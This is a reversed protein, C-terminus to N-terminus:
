EISVPRSIACGTEDRIYVRYNGPPLDRFFRNADFIEGDLSYAYPPQGQMANVVIAGSASGAASNRKALHRAALDGVTITVEASATEGDLAATVAYATTAGPAAMTASSDPNALGARPTWSFSAGPQSAEAELLVSDGACLVAAQSLIEVDFAQADVFKLVFVDGAIDTSDNGFTISESSTAGSVYFAGNGDSALDRAAENGQGGGTQVWLLALDEDLAAFYLDSSTTPAEFTQDGISLQNSFSGAIYVKGDEVCAGRSNASLAVTNLVEFEPSFKYLRQFGSVYVNGNADAALGLTSSAGMATRRTLEGEPSFEYLFETGNEPGCGLVSGDPKVHIHAMNVLGRAESTLTWEDAGDAAYKRLINNTNSRSGTRGSAYAFDEGAAAVDYFVNNSGSGSNARIWQFAGENDFKAVLGDQGGGNQFEEGEYEFSTTYYGSMYVNGAPDVSVGLARAEAASSIGRAWVPAGTRSNLSCVMLDFDAGEPLQEGGIEPALRYSAAVALSGEASADVRVPPASDTFGTLNLDFSAGWELRVQATAPWCVPLIAAVLAFLKLM